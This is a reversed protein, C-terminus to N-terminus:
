DARASRGPAPRAAAAHRPPWQRRALLLDVAELAEGGIRLRPPHDVRLAGVDHQGAGLEIQELGEEVPRPAHQRAILQEIEGAAAVAVHEVARDVHQDAAQAALEAVAAGRRQELGHAVAAILEGRPDIQLVVRM